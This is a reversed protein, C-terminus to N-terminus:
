NLKLTTKRVQRRLADQILRVVENVGDKLGKVEWGGSSSQELQLHLSDVKSLLQNMEDQTLCEIEEPHFPHTSCQSEYARQLERCADSVENDTHGVLLFSATNKSVPLARVLSSLDLSHQLSFSQSRRSMTSGSRGRSTVNTPVLPAPASFTSLAISDIYHHLFSMNKYALVPFRTLMKASEMTWIDINNKTPKHHFVQFLTLSM